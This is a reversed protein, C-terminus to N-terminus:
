KSMFPAEDEYEGEEGTRVGEYHDRVQLPLNFAVPNRQEIKFQLGSFVGQPGTTSPKRAAGCVYCFWEGRPPNGPDEPPDLCTFHFSRPCGDCCLLEGSGGCATCYDVNDHQFM